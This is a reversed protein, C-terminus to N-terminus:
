VTTKKLAALEIAKALKVSIDAISALAGPDIQSFRNYQGGAIGGAITAAAQILLATEM